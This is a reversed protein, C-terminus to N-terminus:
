QTVAESFMPLPATTGNLRPLIIENVYEASIEIGIYQRELQMAAKLTTGSGAFPDLVVDGPNSWSLIHDRALAEPFAAPHDTDVLAGANFEWINNRIGYEEREMYRFGKKTGDQNRHGLAGMGKRTSDLNKRDAILNISKPTGISLVFMYEFSQWYYKNSGSAGMVKKYIMTEVSFGLERFYLAQRFSTGTESGDITADGVVWVVVGGPKTVRYLQRAIAEFDFTFGKYTRLNDYPPSTVTLDICADPFTALVVASDGILVTNTIM